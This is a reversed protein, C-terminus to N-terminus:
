ITQEGRPESRLGDQIKQPSPPCLPGKKGNDSFVGGEGSVSGLGSGEVGASSRVGFESEVGGGGPLVGLKKPSLM